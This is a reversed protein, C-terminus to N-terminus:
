ENREQKGPSVKMNMLKSEILICFRQMSTKCNKLLPIQGELEVSEVQPLQQESDKICRLLLVLNNQLGCTTTRPGKTKKDRATKVAKEKAIKDIAHSPQELIQKKLSDPCNPNNYACVLAEIVSKPLGEQIVRVSFAHQEESPLRSIEQASHPCLQKKTVLDCVSTKLRTVLSIRKSIWSKSKGLLKGMQYQNYKGGKLLENLMLGESIANPSKKLTTILLSIKPAEEESIPITVVDVNKVGMGKLALIECEGSLVIRSGNGFNGVVPPILLGYEKIVASCREVDQKEVSLALIKNNKIGCTEIRSIVRQVNEMIEGGRENLINVLFTTCLYLQLNPYNGM